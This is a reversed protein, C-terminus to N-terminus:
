ECERGGDAVWAVIAYVPGLFTAVGAAVLLVGYVQDATLM